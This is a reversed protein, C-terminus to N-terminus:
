KEFLEKKQTIQSAKKCLDDVAEVIDDINDTKIIIGRQAFLEAIRQPLEQDPIDDPLIGFLEQYDLFLKEQRNRLGTIIDEFTEEEEEEKEENLDDDSMKQIKVITENPEEQQIHFKEILENMQLENPCPYEAVWGANVLNSAIEPYTDVRKKLTESVLVGDISTINKGLVILISIKYHHNEKTIPSNKLSIKTANPISKFNKFDKIQSNDAIFSTLNKLIPLGELSTVKTGSIDLTKILKRDSSFHPLALAAPDFQEENSLILKGTRRLSGIRRNLWKPLQNM